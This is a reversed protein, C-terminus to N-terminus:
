VYGIEEGARDISPKGLHKKVSELAQAFYMDIWTELDDPHCLTSYHYKAGDVVVDIRVERDLLAEGDKSTFFWPEITVQLSNVIM